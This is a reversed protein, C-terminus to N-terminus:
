SVHLFHAVGARGCCAAVNRTGGVDIERMATFDHTPNFVWALHVVLDIRLERLLHELGPDTVSGPHHAFGAPPAQPPRTDVGALLEIGPLAALRPLLLSALYGSSGTVLVRM